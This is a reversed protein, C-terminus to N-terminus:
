ENSESTETLVRRRGGAAGAIGWVVRVLLGRGACRVLRGVCLWAVRAGAVGRGRGRGAGTLM